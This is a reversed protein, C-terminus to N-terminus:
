LYKDELRIYDPKGSNLTLLDDKKIEFLSPHFNFNNAILAKVEIKKLDFNKDEVAIILKDDKGVVLSKISKSNLLSEIYDLNVSIGKLKIFRKMRGIISIFNDKDIKAIDGTRLTGNLNDDLSLDKFDNAYGMCVNPGTYILEGEGDKNGIKDIYVEGCDIPIGVTGLKELGMKPPVYSIRPTAETQGYMTFYSFSKSSSLELFHKTIKPELRGGAQTLCRLNEYFQDSIKLRQMIELTFPVASIESINFSICDEWLSKNFVTDTTIFISSRTYIANNLVSLGYSYHFPLFSLSRNKQTLKLYKTINKTSSEINESTIRVSKPDGTSGSTLLLLSLKEHINKKSIPNKLLIYNHFQKTQKYDSFLNSLKLVKPSFIYKPKYARVIGELAEKKTESDILLPILNKRLASLYSIATEENRGSLILLIERDCEAFLEDGQSFAEKYTISNDKSVLFDQSDLTNSDQWFSM